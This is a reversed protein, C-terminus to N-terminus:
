RAGCTRRHTSSSPTSCRSTRRRTQSSAACCRRGRCGRDPARPSSDGSMSTRTAAGAICTSTPVDPHREIFPRIAAESSFRPTLGALVALAEEPHDIGHRSVFTGCPLTIWGTFTPSELTRWLVAAADPFAQPLTRALRDALFSVRALLELPELGAALGTTFRRRPFAPWAAALESALRRAAAPGLEDKFPAM